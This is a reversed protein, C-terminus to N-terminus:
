CEKLHTHTKKDVNWSGNNEGTEDRGTLVDFRNIAEEKGHTKDYLDWRTMPCPGACPMMPCYEILPCRKGELISM